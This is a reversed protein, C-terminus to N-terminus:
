LGKLVLRYDDPGALGCCHLELQIIQLSSAADKVELFERMDQTFKVKFEQEIIKKRYITFCITGVICLVLVTTVICYIYFAIPLLKEIALGFVFAISFLCIVLGLAIYIWPYCQLGYWPYWDQFLTWGLGALVIGFLALVFNCGFIVLFVPSSFNM